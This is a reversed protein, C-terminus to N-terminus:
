QACMRPRRTSVPVLFVTRVTADIQRRPFVVGKDDQLYRGVPNLVGQFSVKRSRHGTADAFVTNGQVRLRFSGESVLNDLNAKVRNYLM